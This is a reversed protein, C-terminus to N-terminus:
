NCCVIVSSSIFIINLALKSFHSMKECDNYKVKSKDRNQDGGRKAKKYQNSTELQNTNKVGKRKQNDKMGKKGKVSTTKRM